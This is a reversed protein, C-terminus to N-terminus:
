LRQPEWASVELYKAFHLLPPVDPLTIGLPAIMTNLEIDAEALQLPWMSHHIDARYIVGDRRNSYLCYRETLWHALSGFGGQRVESVPQYMGKFAAEAKGKTVKRQTGYYIREDQVSVTMNAHYYPLYYWMRAGLVAMLSAADLSFFYVGPKGDAVVYTRVNSEPIRSAGPLAPAQRLKIGMTFPVVGIWTEGEFEDIQLRDPVLPRLENTSIPWHAFLLDYWIMEILHKGLPLPWPRHAIDEHNAPM